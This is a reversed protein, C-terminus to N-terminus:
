LGQFSSVGLVLHGIISILQNQEVKLRVASVYNPVRSRMEHMKMAIRQLLEEEKGYSLRTLYGRRRLVKLIDDSPTEIRGGLPIEPTWAGYLPKPASRLERSRLYTALDKSVKDYAGTYGHVLLMEDPEEPLDVYIVYSSTRDEPLVVTQEVPKRSQKTHQLTNLPTAPSPQIQVLEM